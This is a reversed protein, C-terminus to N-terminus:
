VCRNYVEFTQISTKKWSYNMLREKGMRILEKRIDNNYIIKEVSNLLSDSDLPDFYEGANGAIEPFCSSNSLCVPCDNAFAELIPMGFGEYLSPFVFVRAYKYLHNLLSENAQISVVRNDINLKNLLNIERKLFRSGVCVVSLEKDRHLLPSVSKIFHNFNKYNDRNGVYLIYNGWSNPYYQTITNSYGHYVVEIKQSPINYLKIIDEKTKKSIAIIRKAANILRKRSELFEANEKYYINVFREYILDHITLVFPKKLRNLFFASYYTPHYLDFNNQKIKHNTLVKNICDYLKVKGRFEKNSISILNKKFYNPLYHNDTAIVSIDSTVQSPMNSILECFYKSIGGFKQFSFIQHDYLVQM